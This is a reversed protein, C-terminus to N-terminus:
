AYGARLILCYALLASLTTELGNRLRLRIGIRVVARLSSASVKVREKESSRLLGWCVGKEEVARVRDRCKGLCRRKLGKFGILM